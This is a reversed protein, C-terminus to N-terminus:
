QHSNASSKKIAQLIIEQHDFALHPLSNVNFWQVEKADDGARASVKSDSIQATFVVSITHGRPDRNPNGFTYFQELQLNKLGTEEELERNAANLLPENKDVFGGPLAWCDKFPDNLRKILLILTTSEITNFVIIDTTVMPRPYNYTFAM